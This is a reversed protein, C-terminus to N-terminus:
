CAAVVRLLRHLTEERFDDGVEVEGGDVRVTYRAPAAAPGSEVPVLKLVAAPRPARGLHQGTLRAKMPRIMVM